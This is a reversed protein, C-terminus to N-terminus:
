GKRLFLVLVIYEMAELEGSFYHINYHYHIIM